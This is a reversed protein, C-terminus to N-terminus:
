EVRVEECSRRLWTMWHMGHRDRCAIRDAATAVRRTDECLDKVFEPNYGSAWRSFVAQAEGDRPNSLFDQPELRWEKLQKMVLCFNETLPLPENLLVFDLALIGV